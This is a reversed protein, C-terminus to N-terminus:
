ENKIVSLFIKDENKERKLNYKIKKICSSLIYIMDDDEDFSLNLKNFIDEKYQNYITTFHVINIDDYCLNKIKTLTTTKKQIIDNLFNLVLQKKEKKFDRNYKSIEKRIEKIESLETKYSKKEDYNNIKNVVNAIIVIKKKDKDYIKNYKFTFDFHKIIKTILNCIENKEYKEQIDIDFNAEIKYKYKETIEIFNDVDIDDFNLNKLDRISKIKLDLAENIYNIILSYKEEQNELNNKSLEHLNYMTKYMANQNSSIKQM